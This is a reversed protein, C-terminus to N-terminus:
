QMAVAFNVATRIQIAEGFRRSLAAIVTAHFERWKEAPLSSKMFRGSLSNCRSIVYDTTMMNTNFEVRESRVIGLGADRLVASLQEGSHLCEENPLVRRTADRLEKTSVYAEAIESWATGAPNESPGIAWSTLGITGEPRVVRAMKVVAASCDQLHNMVFSATLHHFSRNIYPLELVDAVLFQCVACSKARLIMPLSVDVGFVSLGSCQQMATKAVVGTGCAVDLLRQGPSLRLFSILKAAVPEFFNPALVREYEEAIDDYRSWNLDITM